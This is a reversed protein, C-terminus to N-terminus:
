LSSKQRLRRNRFVAQPWLVRSNLEDLLKRCAREADPLSRDGRIDLEAIRKVLLAPARSASVVQAAKKYKGFLATDRDFCRKITSCTRLARPIDM